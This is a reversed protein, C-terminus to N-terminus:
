LSITRQFFSFALLDRLKKAVEVLITLLLQSPVCVLCFSLYWPFNPKAHCVSLDVLCFLNCLVSRDQVQSLLLVIAAPSSSKASSKQDMNAHLSILLSAPSTSPHCNLSCGTICFSNEHTVTAEQSHSFTFTDAKLLCLTLDYLGM